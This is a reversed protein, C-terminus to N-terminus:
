FYRRGDQEHSFVTYIAEMARPVAPGAPSTCSYGLMSQLNQVYNVRLNYRLYM